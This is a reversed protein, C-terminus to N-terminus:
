KDNCMARMSQHCQRAAEASHRLKLEFLRKM